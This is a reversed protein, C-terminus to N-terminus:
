NLLMKKYERPTKGTQKKFLRAFYSPNEFGLDYAIESVSHQGLRLLNKAESILSLHILELATKGTEQKLLDSLYRPSLFLQEAMYNVTPLGQEKISNKAMYIQLVDNFRSVTKGSIQQRDVFQRRFYRLSYSLISAIHNLIIERSYEDPNNQYEDNIKAYLDWIIREEKPSLHLAENTEYDFFSYAEILKNLEHGKIYDEHILLMFGDKEFELDKMEIIQRPKIFFLSGNDHDYKTRGYMFHGSIIKKFAIVYCDSTFERDGLTCEALFGVVSFLPHAPPNWQNEIHMQTLSTYHKM